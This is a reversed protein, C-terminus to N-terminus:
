ARTPANSVMPRSIMQMIKRGMNQGSKGYNQWRRTSHVTIRGARVREPPGQARLLRGHQASLAGSIEM